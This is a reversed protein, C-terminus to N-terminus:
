RVLVPTMMFASGPGIPSGGTAMLGPMTVLRGVVAKEANDYGEVFFGGINSIPVDTRGGKQAEAMMDPNVLPIAVIRPSTAYASGSIGGRGGNLTPNWYAGSDKNILSDGDTEVCQRTPGVKEGPETSFTLTDGVKYTTGVCGKIHACYCQGGPCTLQLAAFWGTAYQFDNQDGVKLKLQRGYDATFTGDPNYPHFGTGPDTATPAIYNDPPDISPDIEGRDNGITQYKDYTDTEAWPKPTPYLEEWKDIVGWPKLCDTANGIVVQATATARVDQQVLGVLSGFFMPLPNGRALSRHVDVQICTGDTNPVPCVGTGTWIQVDGLTPDVSPVAGWVLNSQAVSVATQAPIGTLSTDGPADQILAIAGALAGADAANQAQRRSEWFVGFDIVFTTFATIALLAFAVHVLIAGQQGAWKQEQGRM